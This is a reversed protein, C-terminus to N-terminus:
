IKMAKWRKLRKGSNDLLNANAANGDPISIVSLSKTLKKVLKKTKERMPTIRWGKQNLNNKSDGQHTSQYSQKQNSQGLPRRKRYVRNQQSALKSKAVVYNGNDTTYGIQNM